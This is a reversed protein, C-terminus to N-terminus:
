FSACGVFMASMHKADFVFFQGCRCMQLLSEPAFHSMLCFFAAIHCLWCRLYQSVLFIAPFGNGVVLNYRMLGFSFTM